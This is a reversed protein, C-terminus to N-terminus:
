RYSVCAIMLVDEILPAEPAMVTEDDPVVVWSATAPNGAVVCGAAGCSKVTM